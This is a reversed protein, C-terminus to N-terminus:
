SFKRICKKCVGKQAVRLGGSIEVNEPVACRELGQDGVVSRRYNPPKEKARFSWSHCLLRAVITARRSQETKNM